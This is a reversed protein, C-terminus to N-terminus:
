GARLVMEQVAIPLNAVTQFVSAAPLINLLAFISSLITLAIGFLGWASIWRPVLRYPYFIAYYGVVTAHTRHINM